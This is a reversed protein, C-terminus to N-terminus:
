YQYTVRQKPYKKEQFIESITDEDHSPKFSTKTKEDERSTDNVKLKIQNLIIDQTKYKTSM